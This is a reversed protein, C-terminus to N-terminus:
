HYIIVKGGRDRFRTLDPDDTGLVADYQEVSRMWYQEFGELTLTRWDWNADQALYYTWYDM